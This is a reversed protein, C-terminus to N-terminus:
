GTEAEPVPARGFPTDPRTRTTPPPSALRRVARALRAVRASGPPLRGGTALWSGAVVLLLGAVLAAGAGEGLVAVGLVVAVAPAVYSTVAARAAGVVQVLAFYLFYNGGAYVLGLLAVLALQPLTPTVSPATLVAPGALIVASIGLCGAVIGLPADGAFNRKLYLGGAALSLSAALVLIGGLLAEPTGRLELGLLCLVGAMGVFLGVLRWGRVRETPEYRWALLAVFIPAAAMLVGTLSSPIAASGTAVLVFPVAFELCALVTLARLRGQLSRLAGRRYAIPVLVAAGIALRGEAIVLVPLAEVAVKVFLYASGSLGSVALFLVWARRTM